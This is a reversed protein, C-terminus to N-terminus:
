RQWHWVDCLRARSETRSGAACAPRRMRAWCRRASTWSPAVAQSLSVTVDEHEPRGRFQDALQRHERAVPHCPEGNHDQCPLASGSLLEEVRFLRRYCGM